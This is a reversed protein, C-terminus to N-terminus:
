GQAAVATMEVRWEARALAVQFTARAPPPTGDLWECWVANMAEFDGIDALLVTVSILRSRDSGAQDLRADIQALVARTQDEIGSSGDEAVQGALHVVGGYAVAQTLFPGVGHRVPETPQSM